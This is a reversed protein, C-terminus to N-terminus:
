RRKRGSRVPEPAITPHPPNAKSRLRSFEAAYKKALVPDPIFVMNEDNVDVSHHSFNASGTVVLEDDIVFVDHHLFRPSTALQVEAKSPPAWLSQHVGPARAMSPELLGRVSIEQSREVLAQVIEQLRIIFAMFLISRQAGHIRNLLEPVIPDEPAFM